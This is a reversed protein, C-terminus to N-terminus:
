SFCHGPQGGSGVFFGLKACPDCIKKGLTTRQCTTEGIPYRCIEHLFASWPGAKMGRTAIFTYLTPCTVGTIKAISSKSVRLNLFHRIEDERGDLRSVGISGRPRGLKKGSSWVKALGARTRESILDYEVEAFLAFLTTMVKTQLDHRGEFRINEKDAVFAM